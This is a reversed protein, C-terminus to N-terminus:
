IQHLSFHCSPAQSLIGTVQWAGCCVFYVECFYKMRSSAVTEKHPLEFVENKIDAEAGFAFYVRLLNLEHSVDTCM